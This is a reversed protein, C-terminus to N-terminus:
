NNTRKITGFFLQHASMVRPKPILDDPHIWKDERRECKQNGSDGAREDKKDKPVSV